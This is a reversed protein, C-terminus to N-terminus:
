LQDIEDLVFEIHTLNDLYNFVHSFKENKFYSKVRQSFKKFEKQISSPVVDIFLILPMEERDEASFDDNEEYFKYFEEEDKIYNDYMRENNLMRGEAILYGDYRNFEDCKKCLSWGFCVEGDVKAAMMLGKKNGKSDKIYSMIVKSEIAADKMEEWLNTVM